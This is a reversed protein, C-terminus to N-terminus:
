SFHYKTGHAMASQMPHCYLAIFTTCFGPLLDGEVQCHLPVLNLKSRYTSVPTQSVSSHDFRFGKQSSRYQFAPFRGPVTAGQQIGAMSDPKITDQARLTPLYRM